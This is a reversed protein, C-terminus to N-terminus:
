SGVDGPCVLLHSPGILANEISRQSSRHHSQALPHIALGHFGNEVVPTALDLPTFVCGPPMKAANPLLWPGGGSFSPGGFMSQRTLASLAGCM